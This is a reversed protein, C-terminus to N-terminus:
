GTARNGTSISGADLRTALEAVMDVTSIMQLDRFAQMMRDGRQRVLEPDSNNDLDDFAAKAQRYAKAKARVREVQEDPTMSFFNKQNM